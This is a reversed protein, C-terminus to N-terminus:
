SEQPQSLKRIHLRVPEVLLSTPCEALLRNYYGLANQINGLFKEEIEGALVLGRDKIPSNEISLAVQLAQDLQGFEILLLALRLTALPTILADPHYNQISQLM